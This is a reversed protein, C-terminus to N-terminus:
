RARRGHQSAAGVIERVLLHHRMEQEWIRDEIGCAHRAVDVTSREPPRLDDLVNAPVMFAAVQM